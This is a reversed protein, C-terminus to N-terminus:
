EESTASDSIYPSQFMRMTRFAAVRIGAIASLAICALAGIWIAQWILGGTAHVSHQANLAGALPNACTAGITIGIALGILTPFLTELMFQWAIRGKSVGVLLAMGIENSRPLAALLVLGILALAGCIWLVIMVIRTTESLTNLAEISQMYHKITPSSVEMGKPLDAKLAAAFKDIDSRNEFTFVVNLDPVSWGKGDTTDLGNIAFTTYTTYLVNNRNDKAFKADDGLANDPNSTYRYIGCVTYEYTTESDTPNGIKITSGVKLNNKKALEESVLVNQALSNSYDLGKGEIVKYTGYENVQAAESTYFSQLTLNGGTKDESAKSTSDTTIAQISASQRVSISEAVTYKYQVGKTQAASALKDYDSWSLYHDTWSSDDGQRTQLLSSSPRVVATASQKDLTETRAKTNEHVVAGGFTSWMAVILSVLLLLLSRWPHRGLQKWAQSFIFMYEGCDLEPVGCHM